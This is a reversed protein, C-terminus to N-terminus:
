LGRVHCPFTEGIQEELWPSDREAPVGPKTVGWKEYNIVCISPKPGREIRSDERLARNQGNGWCTHACVCVHGHMCVSGSGVGEKAGPFVAEQKRCSIDTAGAFRGLGEDPNTQGCDRNGNVRRSDGMHNQETTTESESKPSPLHPKRLIETSGTGLADRSMSFMNMPQCFLYVLLRPTSPAAMLHILLDHFSSSKRPFTLESKYM